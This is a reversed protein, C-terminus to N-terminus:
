EQWPGDQFRKDHALPEICPPCRSGHLAQPLYAAFRSAKHWGKYALQAQKGPSTVLHSWWDGYALMLAAPSMGATFRGISYHALRNWLAFLDEERALENVRETTQGA